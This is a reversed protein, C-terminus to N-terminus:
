LNPQLYKRHFFEGPLSIIMGTYSFFSSGRASILLHGLVFPIVIACFLYGKESRTSRSM